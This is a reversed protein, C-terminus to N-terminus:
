RSVEYVWPVPDIPLRKLDGGDRPFRCDGTNLGVNPPLMARHQRQVFYLYYASFIDTCVPGQDAEAQLAQDAQQLWDQTNPPLGFHMRAPSLTHVISRTYQFAVHHPEFVFSAVMVGSVMSGTLLLQPWLGALKSYRLGLLVVLMPVGVYLFSSFGFRWAIQPYLVMSLLGAPLQAFLALLPLASLLVFSLARLNVHPTKKAVVLALLAAFLGMYHYFNFSAQGRNGRNIMWDGYRLVAEYFGNFGMAYFKEAGTPLRGQYNNVVLYVVLAAFVFGLFYWWLLKWRFGLTLVALGAFFFYPLESAHIKTIFVAGCAALLVLAWRQSASVQGLFALLLAAASLFYVPLAIQYNVSYWLLWSQIFGQSAAVPVSVTGHMVLWIWVACLAQLALAGREVATRQFVTLLVWYAALGVMVATVLTQVRHILLAKDFVNEISLVNLLGQWFAHWLRAGSSEYEIRAIHIWVDFGPYMM